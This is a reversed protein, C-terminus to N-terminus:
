LSKNTAEAGLDRWLGSIACIKYREKEPNKAM